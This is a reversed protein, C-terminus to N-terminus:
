NQNINIEIAPNGPKLYKTIQILTRSSSFNTATEVAAVYYNGSTLNAANFSIVQSTSSGVLNGGTLSDYLKYTYNPQFNNIGVVGIEGDCIAISSNVLIPPAIFFAYYLRASISFRSSTSLRLRLGDSEESSGPIPISVETANAGGNTTILAALPASTYATGVTGNIGGNTRQIAIEDTLESLMITSGFKIIIPSTPRPRLVGTFQLNQQAFFLGGIGVGINLTSYNAYDADIARNENSISASLSHSNQQTTAYVRQGYVNSSYIVLMWIFLTIYM